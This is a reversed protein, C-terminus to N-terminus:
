AVQTATADIVRPEAEDTNVLTRLEHCIATNVMHQLRLLVRTAPTGDIVRHDFTLVLHSIGKRPLPDVGLTTTNPGLHKSGYAGNYGSISMGFTGMHMARKDPWVNFLTWWAFRRIMAPVKAFKIQHRFQKIENIPAKRFHDYQQQLDPLSFHDPRNFRAFFLREEGEHERAMTMMCVPEEFEHLHGYPFGVYAQRLVPNERSVQAYAKMFIVNWSIKPRSRRRLMAVESTEFDGAIGAIPMRSAMRIVDDVLRRGNSLRIRKGM